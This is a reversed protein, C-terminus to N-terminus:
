GEMARIGQDLTQQVYLFIYLYGTPENLSNEMKVELDLDLFWVSGEVLAIMWSLSGGWSLLGLM